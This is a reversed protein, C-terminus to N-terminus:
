EEMGGSTRLVSMEDFTVYQSIVVKKELPDWLRYGKVGRPYGLFIMKKAKADLKSQEGADVHVYAMCGLVRLHILGIKGRSWREELLGGDLKTHPSRNVLYCAADITDVWFVKPLEAQLRM